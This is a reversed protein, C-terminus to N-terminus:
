SMYLGLTALFILGGVLLLWQARTRVIAMDQEPRRNFVGSPLM